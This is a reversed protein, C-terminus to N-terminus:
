MLPNKIAKESVYLLVMAVERLHLLDTEETIVVGILKWINAISM